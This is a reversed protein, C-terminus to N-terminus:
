PTSSLSSKRQGCRYDDTRSFLYYRVEAVLQRAEALWQLEERLVGRLDKDTALANAQNNLQSLLGSVKVLRQHVRDAADGQERFMEIANPM